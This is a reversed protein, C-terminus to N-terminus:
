MLSMVFLIDRRQGRLLAMAKEVQHEVTRESIGMRQAIEKYRLGDRKSLLFAERCREPLRDIAAWLRAERESREQAEEDDMVGDVDEPQIDGTWGQARLRDICANRVATYLFARPQAAEKQWLKVFSEQVVDEAAQKDGRLYHLAYLCLPRYYTHFLVELQM